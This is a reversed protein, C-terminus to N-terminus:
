ATSPQLLAASLYCPEHTPVHEYTQVDGFGNLLQGVLFALGAPVAMFLHVKGRVQYKNWADRLANVALHALGVAHGSSIQARTADKACPDHVHVFARFPIGKPYCSCVDAMINHTVSIVLALDSVTLSVPIFQAVFETASHPADLGWLEPEGGFTTL